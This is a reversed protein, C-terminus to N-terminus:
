KEVKLRSCHRESTTTTPAIVYVWSWTCGKLRSVLIDISSKRHQPISARYCHSSTSSLIAACPHSLTSANPQSFGAVYVNLQFLVLVLQQFGSSISIFPVSYAFFGRSCTVGRYYPAMPYTLPFARAVAFSFVWFYRCADVASPSCVFQSCFALCFCFLIYRYPALLGACSVKCHHQVFQRGADFPRISQLVSNIPGASTPLGAFNVQSSVKRGARIYRLVAVSPTSNLNGATDAEM